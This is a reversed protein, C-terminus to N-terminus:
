IYVDINKVWDSKILKSESLLDIEHVVVNRGRFYIQKTSSISPELFLKLKIRRCLEYVALRLYHVYPTKQKFSNLNITELILSTCM